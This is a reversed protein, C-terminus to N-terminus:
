LSWKVVGFHMNAYDDAIAAAVSEYLTFHEPFPMSIDLDKVIEICQIPQVRYREMVLSYHRRLQWWAEPMHQRKIEIIVTREPLLLLGDPFANRPGKPTWYIIHPEAEYLPFCDLLALQIKEEYRLGAERAATNGNRRRYKRWRVEIREIPLSPEQFNQPPNM